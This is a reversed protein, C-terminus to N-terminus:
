GPARRSAIVRWVLWRRTAVVACAACITANLAWWAAWWNGLWVHMGIGILSSITVVVYLWMLARVWRLEIM